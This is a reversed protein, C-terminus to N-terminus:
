LTARKKKAGLLILYGREYILQHATTIQYDVAISLQQDTPSGLAQRKLVLKEKHLQRGIDARSPPNPCALADAVRLVTLLKGIQAGAGLPVKEKGVAYRVLAEDIKARVSGIQTDLVNPDIICANLDFVVAMHGVDLDLSFSQMGGHRLPGVTRDIVRLPRTVAWVPSQVPQIGKIAPNRAPVYDYQYHKYVSLGWQPSCSSSDDTSGNSAAPDDCEKQFYRNRRLFEWAWQSPETKLPDLGYSSADQWDPIWQTKKPKHSNIAHLFRAHATADRAADDKAIATEDSEPRIVPPNLWSEHDTPIAESNSEPEIPLKPKPAM